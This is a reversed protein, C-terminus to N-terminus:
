EVTKVELTHDFTLLASINGAIPVVAEYNIRIVKMKGRPELTLTKNLDIDNDANDVELTKRVSEKIQALNMTDVDPKKSLSLLASSVKADTIYPPLLKFFLFLTFALVGLVFLLGWMTMGSQLKRSQM